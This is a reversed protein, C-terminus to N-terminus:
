YRIERVKYRTNPCRHELTDLFESRIRSGDLNLERFDRRLLIPVKRSKSMISSSLNNSSVEKKNSVSTTSKQISNVEEISAQDHHYMIGEGTIGKSDRLSLKKVRTMKQLCLLFFDDTLEGSQKFHFEEFHNGWAEVLQTFIDKHPHSIDCDIDLIELQPGFPIVTSTTGTHRYSTPYISSTAQSKKQQQDMINFNHTITAVLEQLWERPLVTDKFKLEIKRLGTWQWWGSTRTNFGLTSDVLPAVEWEYDHGVNLSTIAHPLSAIAIAITSNYEPIATTTSELVSQISATAITSAGHQFDSVIDPPMATTPRFYTSLGFIHRPIVANMRLIRIRTWDYEIVDTSGLSELTVIDLKTMREMERAWTKSIIFGPSFHLHRIQSYLSGFVAEFGSVQNESSGRDTWVLRVHTFPLLRILIRRIANIEAARAFTIISLDIEITQVCKSLDLDYVELYSDLMAEIRTRTAKSEDYTRCCYCPDSPEIRCSESDLVISQWLLQLAAVRWQRCVLSCIYLDSRLSTHTTPHFYQDRHLYYIMMEDELENDVRNIGHRPFISGTRELSHCNCQLDRSQNSRRTANGIRANRGLVPSEIGLETDMTENYDESYEDDYEEGEDSYTNASDTHPDDNFGFTIEHDGSSASDYEDSNYSHDTELNDSNSSHDFLRSSTLKTRASSPQDLDSHMANENNLEETENDGEADYGREESIVQCHHHSPISSQSFVEHHSPSSSSQRQRLAQQRHYYAHPVFSHGHAGSSQSSLHLCPHYQHPYRIHLKARTTEADLFDGYGWGARSLYLPLQRRKPIPKAQCSSRKSAKGRKLERAAAFRSLSDDSVYLFQQFINDLLELPMESYYMDQWSLPTCTAEMTNQDDTPGEDDSSGSYQSTRTFWDGISSSNSRVGSPVLISDNPYIPKHPNKRTHRPQFLSQVTGKSYPIRRRLTRTFPKEFSPGYVTFPDAHNNDTNSGIAPSSSCSGHHPEKETVPKITSGLENLKPKNGQDFQSNQSDLASTNSPTEGRTVIAVTGPTFWTVAANKELVM